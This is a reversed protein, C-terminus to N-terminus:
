YYIIRELEISPTEYAKSYITNAKISNLAKSNVEQKTEQELDNNLLFDTILWRIIIVKNWFLSNLYKTKFWFDLKKFSFVKQVM